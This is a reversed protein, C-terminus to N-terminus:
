DSDIISAIAEAFGAPHSEDRSSIFGERQTIVKRGILQSVDKGLQDRMHALAAFYGYWVDRNSNVRSNCGKCTAFLMSEDHDSKDYHAHHISLNYGLEQETVGCLQCMFKDRTRIRLKLSRSFGPAYPTQSQGGAWRPNKDGSVSEAIKRRWKPDAAFKLGRERAAERRAPDAWFAKMKASHEKRKRGKLKPKPKGKQSVSNKARTEDTRVYSPKCKRCQSSKPSMLGPCTPCPIKHSPM